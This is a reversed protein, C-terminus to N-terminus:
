KLTWYEVELHTNQDEEENWMM